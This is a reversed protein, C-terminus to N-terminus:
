EISNDPNINRDAILVPIGDIIPFDRGCAVCKLASGAAVLDGECAPCALQAMIEAPIIISGM